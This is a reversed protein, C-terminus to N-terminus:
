NELDKKKEDFEKKDIEGKAYREKLIALASNKGIEDKHEHGHGGCCGMEGNGRALWIFFYIFGFVILIWFLMMFIGGMWGWSGLSSWNGYGFMM